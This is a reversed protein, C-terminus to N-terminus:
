TRFASKIVSRDDEGAVHTSFRSDWLCVPQVWDQEWCAERQVCYVFYSMSSSSCLNIDDKMKIIAFAPPREALGGGGRM